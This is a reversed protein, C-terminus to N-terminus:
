NSIGTNPNVQKLIMRAKSSIGTDPHVQKPVPFLWYLSFYQIIFSEGQYIYSSYMEKRVKKSVSGCAHHLIVRAKNSISAEPHVQKLVLLM